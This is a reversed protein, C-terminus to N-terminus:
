FPSNGATCSGVDGGPAPSGDPCGPAPSPTSGDPGGGPGIDYWIWISGQGGGGGGYIPSVPTANIAVFNNIVSTIPAGQSANITVISPYSSGITTSNNTYDISFTISTLTALTYISNVSTFTITGGVSPTGNPPATMLLNDGDISVIYQTGNYGNGSASWGTGLNNTNNLTLFNTSSTFIMPNGPTAPTEPLQDVIITSGSKVSLIYANQGSSYGNSTITWGPGLGTTNSLTVENTATSFTINGNLIPIGVPSGSMGLWTASTVSTIYLGDYTNDDSNAMWGTYLGVTSSVVLTTGTNSKYQVDIPSTDSQYLKRLPSGTVYTKNKTIITTNDTNDTDGTFDGGFNSFNSHHLVNPDDSVEISNINADTTSSRNEITFVTYAM